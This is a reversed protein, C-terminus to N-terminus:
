DNAVITISVSQLYSPTPQFEKKDDARKTIVKGGKKHLRVNMWFIHVRFDTAGAAVHDLRTGGLLGDDDANAVHAMRKVGARLLEHVGGAAHVFELLAEGFRLGRLGFLGRLLFLFNLQGIENRGGACKRSRASKKKILWPNVCISVSLFLENFRQITLGDGCLDSAVFIFGHKDTGM